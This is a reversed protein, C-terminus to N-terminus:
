QGSTKQAINFTASAVKKEWEIKENLLTKFQNETSFLLNIFMKLANEYKINSQLLLILM